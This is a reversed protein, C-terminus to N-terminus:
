FVNYRNFLILYNVKEFEDLLQNMTFVVAVVALQFEAFVSSRNYLHATWVCLVVYMILRIVCDAITTYRKKVEKNLQYQSYIKQYFIMLLKAIRGPIFLMITVVTVICHM